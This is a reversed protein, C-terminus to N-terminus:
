ALSGIAGHDRISSKTDDKLWERGVVSRSADSRPGIASPGIDCIGYVSSSLMFRSHTTVRQEGNVAHQGGTYQWVITVGSINIEPFIHAPLSV